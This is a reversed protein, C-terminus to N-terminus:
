PMTRLLVAEPRCDIGQPLVSVPWLRKLKFRVTGEIRRPTDSVKFAKVCKELHKIRSWLVLAAYEYLDEDKWQSSESTISKRKQAELQALRGESWASFQIEKENMVEADRDFGPKEEKVKTKVDNKEPEPEDEGPPTLPHKKEVIADARVRLSPSALLEKRLAELYETLQAAKKVSLKEKLVDLQRSQVSHSKTGMEGDDSKPMSNLIEATAFPWFTERFNINKGKLIADCLRHSVSKDAFSTVIIDVKLADGDVTAQCTLPVQVKEQELPLFVTQQDFFPSVYSSTFMTFLRTGSLLDGTIELSVYGDEKGSDHMTAHSLLDSLPLRLQSELVGRPNEKSAELVFPVPKVEIPRSLQLYTAASKNEGLILLCCNTLSELADQDAAAAEFALESSNLVFTGVVMESGSKTGTTCTWRLEEKNTQEEKITFPEVASLLELKGILPPAAQQKFLILKKRGTNETLLSDCPIHGQSAVAQRVTAFSAENKEKINDSASVSPVNDTAMDPNTVQTPPAITNAVAIGRIPHDHTGPKENMGEAGDHASNVGGLGQTSSKKNTTSREDRRSEDSETPAIRVAVRRIVSAGERFVNDVILGILTAVLLVVAIAAVLLLSNGRNVGLGRATTPVSMPERSLSPNRIVPPPKVLPPPAHSAAPAAATKRQNITSVPLECSEGSAQIQPSPNGPTIPRISTAKKWPVEIVGRAAQVYPGDDDAKAVRTLDIVAAAGHERAVKAEASDEFATKWVFGADAMAHTTFSVGWRKSPEMLAMAEAFLAITDTDAAVIIWTAMGKLTREVLVGAWGADGATTEWLACKTPDCVPFEVPKAPDQERPNDDWRSAFRGNGDLWKLIAAPSSRAANRIESLDCAVHHSLKNSRGSYDSGADVTRSFVSFKGAVSDIVSHAHIIPNRPDGQPYLHRYGSLAELRSQLEPHIGRTRMVAAFGSRGAQLVRRASTVILEYIM